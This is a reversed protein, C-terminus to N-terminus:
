HSAPPAIAPAEGSVYLGFANSSFYPPVSSTSLLEFTPIEAFVSFNIQSAGAVLYPAPGAYQNELPRVGGGFLGSVSYARFPLGNVPLPPVVISGDAQAPDIPGLGTAFVSVISNPAAPNAASNITGDQNLAAAYYGDVTFVGPAASTVPWQLCNTQSGNYSVCIQAKSATALSWPVIANIQGDQVYLLPAANGNFTVQVNSIQSPFGSEVSAQAQAGQVPGLGIGFLSVIEGGAIPAAYFSAANVICVLQVPQAAPNQAFRALFWSGNSVSAISQTPVFTSDISGLIYVESNPGLALSTAATGQPLYTSQLVGGGSDYVTLVAPSGQECPFLSNKVVLGANASGLLYTSGAADMALPDATYTAGSGTKSFTLVGEPNFRLMQGNFLLLAANGDPDAAMQFPGGIWAPLASYIPASGDPLLRTLFNATASAGVPGEYAGPTTPFDASATTGSVIAAGSADVAINAPWDGDSGTLYTAYDFGTGAANLRLVFAHPYTTNPETQQFAHSSTQISGGPATSGLVYAHGTADVAVGALSVAASIPMNYVWGSGAPNLKAVFGPGAVYANGAQDVAMASAQFGLVTLYVIHEGDPSLKM